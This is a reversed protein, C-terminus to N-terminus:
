CVTIPGNKGRKSKLVDNKAINLIKCTKVYREAIKDPNKEEEIREFFIQNVLVHLKPDLYKAYALAISKHAFTGPTKGGRKTKWLSKSDSQSMSALADILQQTSDQREWIVPRKNEISGAEKWLDTLSIMEGDSHINM